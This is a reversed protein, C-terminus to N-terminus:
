SRAAPVADLVQGLLNLFGHVTDAQMRGAALEARFRQMVESERLRRVATTRPQALLCADIADGSPSKSQVAGELRALLADIENLPNM